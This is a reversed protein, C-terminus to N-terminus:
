LGALIVSSRMVFIVINQTHPQDNISVGKSIPANFKFLQNSASATDFNITIRIPVAAMALTRIARAIKANMQPALTRAMTTKGSGPPGELLVIVPGPIASLREVEDRIETIACDDGPYLDLLLDAVLQSTSM